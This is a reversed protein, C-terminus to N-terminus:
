LTPGQQEVVPEGTSVLMAALCYADVRPHVAAHSSLEDQELSHFKAYRISAATTSVGPQGHSVRRSDTWIDM